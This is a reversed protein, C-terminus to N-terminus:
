EVDYLDNLKSTDVYALQQLESFHKNSFREERGEREDPRLSRGSGTINKLINSVNTLCRALNRGVECRQVNRRPSHRSGNEVDDAVM